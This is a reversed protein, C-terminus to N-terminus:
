CIESKRVLPFSSDLITQGKQSHRFLSSSNALLNSNERFLVLNSEFKQRFQDKEKKKKSLM